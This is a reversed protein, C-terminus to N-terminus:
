LGHGDLIIARSPSSWGQGGVVRCWGHETPCGVCGRLSLVMGRPDERNLLGSVRDAEREGTTHQQDWRQSVGDAKGEMWKLWVRLEPVGLTGCKFDSFGM